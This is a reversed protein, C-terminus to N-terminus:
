HRWISWATRKASKSLPIIQLVTYQSLDIPGVTDPDPDYAVAGDWYIAHVLGEYPTKTIIIAAAKNLDAYIGQGLLYTQADRLTYEEKPGHMAGIIAGQDNGTAM